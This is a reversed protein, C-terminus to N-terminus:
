GIIEDQSRACGLHMDVFDGEFRRYNTSLAREVRKFVEFPECM